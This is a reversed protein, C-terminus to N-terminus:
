PRLASKRPGAHHLWPVGRALLSPLRRRRLVQSLSFCGPESGTSLLDVHWASCEDGPIAETEQRLVDRWLATYLERDSLHDTEKIFVRLTALADIVEWLKATLTKDELSDPEPLELGADVLQQFNTTLPVTEFEVVRRWFQEREELSM